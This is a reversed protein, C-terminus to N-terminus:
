LSVFFTHLRSTGFVARRCKDVSVGKFVGISSRQINHIDWNTVELHAYKGIFHVFGIRREVLLRRRVVVAGIKNNSLCCKSNFKCTIRVLRVLSDAVLRMSPLLLSQLCAEMKAEMCVTSGM